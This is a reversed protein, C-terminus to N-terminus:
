PTLNQCRVDRRHGWALVESSEEFNSRWQLQRTVDLYPKSSRWRIAKISLQNQKANVVTQRDEDSATRRALKLGREGKRRSGLSVNGPRIHGGRVKSRM